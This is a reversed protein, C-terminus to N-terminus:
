KIKKTVKVSWGGDLLLKRFQDSNSPVKLSAIARFCEGDFRFLRDFAICREM